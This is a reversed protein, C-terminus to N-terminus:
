QPTPRHASPASAPDEIFNYFKLAKASASIRKWCVDMLFLGELSRARSLAVYAQGNEFCKSIDLVVNDLTMGQSKHITIAWGLLLPIQSYRHVVQGDRVTEWKYWRITRTQGGMFEVVPLGDDFRVVIGRAGNVLGKEVELNALLIVQAGICLTTLEPVDVVPPRRSDACLSHILKYERPQRGKALLGALKDNNFGAVDARHSFLITPKIKNKKIVERLSDNLIRGEFYSETASEVIGRRIRQLHQVFEMDQQRIVETFEIVHLGLREWEPSEFVFRDKVPPLQLFDGSFILQIGGFPLENGRIRRALECLKEFTTLTLMSVEDVILVELNKFRNRIRKSKAMVDVSEACLGIGLAAHLTQGGIISAGIGTTSCLLSGKLMRTLHQIVFSKGTGASGTIFVNKGALALKVAQKQLTNARATM